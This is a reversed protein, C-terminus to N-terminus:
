CSLSIILQHMMLPCLPDEKLSQFPIDLNETHFTLVPSIKSLQKKRKTQDLFRLERQSALSTVERKTNALIVNSEM